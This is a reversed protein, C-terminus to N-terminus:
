SFAVRTSEAYELANTGLTGCSSFQPTVHADTTIFTFGRNRQDEPQHFNTKRSETRPLLESGGAYEACVDPLVGPLLGEFAFVTALGKRRVSGM